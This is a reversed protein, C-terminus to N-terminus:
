LVRDVEGAHVSSAKMQSESKPVSSIFDGFKQVEDLRCKWLIRGKHFVSDPCGDCMAQRGDELVDPPQLLLISQSHLQKTWRAPEILWTRFLKALGQNLGALPFLLQV